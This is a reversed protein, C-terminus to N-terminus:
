AVASTSKSDGHCRLPGVRYAAESGPRQTDGLMLSWVPLSDKHTLLGSDEARCSFLFFSLLNFVQLLFLGEVIFMQVVTKCTVDTM